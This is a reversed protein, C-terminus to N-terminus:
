NSIFTIHMNYANNVPLLKSKVLVVIHFKNIGSRNLAELIVMEDVLLHKM